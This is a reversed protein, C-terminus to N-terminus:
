APILPDDVFVAAFSPRDRLRDYYARLPGAADYWHDLMGLDVFRYLASTAIADAFHDHTGGVFPHGAVREGLRTLLGDALGRQKAVHHEDYVERRFNEFFVAKREYATALDPFELAYKRARTIKDDLIDASREGRKALVWVSYSFLMIPLDHLEDAWAKAIPDDSVLQVEDRARSRQDLHAAIRRSDCVIDDGDQLTPVVGRPNVRVYEPAFSGNQRIDVFAYSVDVKCERACLHAVRSWHSTPFYHLTPTSSM